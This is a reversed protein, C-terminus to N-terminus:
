KNKNILREISVIESDPIIELLKKITKETSLKNILINKKEQNFDKLTKHLDKNSISVMWRSGTFKELIKSINWLLEKNSKESSM